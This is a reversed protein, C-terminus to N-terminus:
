KPYLWQSVQKLAKAANINASANFTPQKLDYVRHNKVAPMQAWVPNNKFEANFQPITQDPLAHALRLIVDPKQQALSENNPSIFSQGNAAYVNEGGALKVLDGVYTKETMIMYGAGPMGMLILVRPKRGHVRKKVTTIASDIEQNAAHAQRTRHYQKGLSSLTGKLQNVSDLKLYVVNVAQKKFASNYQDKLTSVAYVTTPNLSAIKEVSPAMPSGIKAVNQYRAPLKAQTKPVGVLDLDLKAFIETIAASTAVIRQSQEQQKQVFVRAGWAIGGIIVLFALLSGIIVKRKM